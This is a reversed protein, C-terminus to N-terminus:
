AHQVTGKNTQRYAQQVTGTDAEIRASSDRQRDTHRSFQGETQRQAQQVTGRNAEIGSSSDRHADRSFM